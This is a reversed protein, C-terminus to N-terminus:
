FLKGKNAQDCLGGHTSPAMIYQITSQQSIGVNPMMWQRTSPSPSTVRVDAFSPPTYHVFNRTHMNLLGTLARDLPVCYLFYILQVYLHSTM